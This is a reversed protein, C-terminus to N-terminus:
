MTEVARNMGSKRFQNKKVEVYELHASVVLGNRTTLRKAIKGVWEPSLL